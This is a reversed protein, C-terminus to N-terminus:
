KLVLECKVAHSIVDASVSAMEAQRSYELLNKKERVLANGFDATLKPGLKPGFKSILVELFKVGATFAGVESKLWEQRRLQESHQFQQSEILKRKNNFGIVNGYIEHALLTVFRAFADPREFRRGNHVQYAAEDVLVHVIVPSGPKDSLMFSYADGVLNNSLKLLEPADKFQNQVTRRDTFQVIFDLDSNNAVKLTAFDEGAVMVIQFLSDVFGAVVPKLHPEIVVGFNLTPKKQFNVSTVNQSTGQDGAFAMQNPGLLLSQCILFITLAPRIPSKIM